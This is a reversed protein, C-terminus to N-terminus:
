DREVGGREQPVVIGSAHRHCGLIIRRRVAIVLFGQFQIRLRLQHQEVDRHEAFQLISWFVGDPDILFDQLGIGM